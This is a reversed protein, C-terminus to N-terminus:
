AVGVGVGEALAAGLALADADGLSSGDGVGSALRWVGKGSVGLGSGVGWGPSVKSPYSTVTSSPSFVRKSTLSAPSIM